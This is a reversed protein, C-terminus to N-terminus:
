GISANAGPGLLKRTGTLELLRALQRRAHIIRLGGGQAACRSDVDLLLALGAADCFGLGRAEVEIRTVAWTLTSLLTDRAERVTVCDLEGDLVVRATHRDVPDISVTLVPTLPDQRLMATSPQRIGSTCEDDDLLDIAISADPM